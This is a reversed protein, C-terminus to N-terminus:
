ARPPDIVVVNKLNYVTIRRGDTNFGSLHTDSIGDDVVQQVKMRNLWMNAGRRVPYVIECGAKIEHGIFDTVM